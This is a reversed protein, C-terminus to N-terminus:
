DDRWEVTSLLTGDICFERVAERAAEVSIAYTGPMESPYSGMLFEITQSEDFIEGRTSKSPWREKPLYVLVSYTRGVGVMLVRDDELKIQVLRPIDDDVCSKHVDDLFQDLQALDDVIREENDCAQVKYMILDSSFELLSGITAM